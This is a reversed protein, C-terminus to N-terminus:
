SEVTEVVLNGLVALQEKDVPIDGANVRLYQRYTSWIEQQNGPAALWTVDYAGTDYDITNKGSAYVDGTLNGDGDDYVVLSGAALAFSGPVVPPYRVSGRFRATTGDGYAEREGRQYQQLQRYSAIVSAGLPVALDFTMTISGTTYDVTGSGDGQLNAAGDDTLTQDAARVTITSPLVPLQPLTGSFTKIIDDGTGLTKSYQIGAVIEIVLLYDVGAAKQVAHYLESLRFDVGPLITPSAFLAEVAARVNQTVDSTAFQSLAAVRLSVDLYLNVGDQVEVDTCIVRVSGAGNNNFYVGLADKLSQSAPTPQGQSDRSWVYLDVTNLEPIEQRLKAKAYAVAGYQPDSFISALTDFDQETVARGNTSVWRPAWVKAHEITERDEGGTGRYTPNAVQVNVTQTPVVGDLQGEVGANIQNLAVNGEIGGGIRSTSEITAGNPPIAGSIGDGFEITAIDVGDQDVDHAVAFVQAQSDGYVVSDVKTWEVGNVKVSVSDDIVPRDTLTFRQFKTGDSTFVESKTEGQTIIASGTLSGSSIRAEELFEFVLGNESVLSTGEPVIVDDTEASALTLTVSVSAATAARLNYGVLKCIKVVNERDQATPLYSENAQYDLYFSLNDFAYAVLELWAMGMQSEYFDRWTNPFREKLFTLLEEKISQFDRRSYDIVPLTNTAQGIEGM